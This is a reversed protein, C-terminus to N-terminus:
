RQMKLLWSFPAEILLKQPLHTKDEFKGKAQGLKTDYRGQTSQSMVKGVSALLARKIKLNLLSYYKETERMKEKKKLPIKSHESPKGSPATRRIGASDM